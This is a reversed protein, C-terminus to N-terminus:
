WPDLVVASFYRPFRLWLTAFPTVVVIATFAAPEAVEDVLETAFTVLASEEAVLKAAGSVNVRLPFEFRCVLM